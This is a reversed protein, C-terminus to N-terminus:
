LDLHRRIGASLYSQALNETLYGSQSTGLYNIVFSYGDQKISSGSVAQGPGFDIGLLGM